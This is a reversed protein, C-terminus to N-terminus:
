SLGAASLVWTWMRMREEETERTSSRYHEPRPARDQWFRGGLPAPETASLWVITDAGTAADRLLPRTLTRFLPLSSAVGPTDAWGPHMVHVTVGDEAWRKQMLPALAVQMRKSRAYAVTGRYDGREYDPDDVPLKQTYMGGSSVLVVRAAHGALLPRLLDTLLLPGLVHTAVTVEHGDVSQTREPPLAGANHVLVDIRDLRDLLVGAFRRVAALDSMDCVELHLEAAPLESRLEALAAKGREENRVVLHVTAGLRALGIAAAKGLGSNAGTVLVRKGAMSGPRPDDTRWGPRRLWYGIRTYGPVVARDLASDLLRGTM